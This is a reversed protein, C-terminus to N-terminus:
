RPKFKHIDPFLHVGEVGEFMLNFVHEFLGELFEAEFVVEVARVGGWMEANEIVEHFSGLILFLFYGRQITVNLREPAGDVGVGRGDPVLDVPLLLFYVVVEIAHHASQALHFFADRPGSPRQLAM